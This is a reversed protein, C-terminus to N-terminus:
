NVEKSCVSVVPNPYLWCYFTVSFFRLVPINRLNIGYNNWRACTKKLFFRDKAQLNHSFKPHMKYGLIKVCCFRLIVIQSSSATLCCLFLVRTTPWQLRQRSFSHTDRALSRPIWQSVLEESPATCWGLRINPASKTRSHSTLVNRLVLRSCSFLFCISIQM